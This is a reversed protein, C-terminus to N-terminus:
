VPEYPQVNNGSIEWASVQSLENALTIVVPGAGAPALRFSGSRAESTVQQRLWEELTQKM